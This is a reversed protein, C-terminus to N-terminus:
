SWRPSNMSKHKMYINLKTVKYMYNLYTPHLQSASNVSKVEATTLGPSEEEDPPHPLGPAYQLRDYDDHHNVKPHNAQPDGKSKTM